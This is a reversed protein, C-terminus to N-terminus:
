KGTLARGGAPAPAWAGLTAAEFRNGNWLFRSMERARGADLSVVILEAGPVVPTGDVLAQELDAPSLAAPAAPHSHYCAAVEGGEERLRRFLRLQVVPDALFARGPDVPLGPPGDASGLANRVAVVELAAGPRPRVVFGCVERTPEAEALAAIRALVDAPYDRASV